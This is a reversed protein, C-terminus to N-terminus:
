KKNYAICITHYLWYAVPHWMGGHLFCFIKLNNKFYTESLVNSTCGIVALFTIKPTWLRKSVTYYSLTAVSAYAVARDLNLFLESYLSFPYIGKLGHKTESLHMLMSTIINSSILCKQPFTIQDSFLSYVGPLNSLTNILHVSLHEM